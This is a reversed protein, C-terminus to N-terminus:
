SLGVTCPLRTKCRRVSLRWRHPRLARGSCTPSGFGRPDMLSGSPRRGRNRWAQPTGPQDEEARITKGVLKVCVLSLVFLAATLGFVVLAGLVRYGQVAWFPGVIRAIAGVAFTVGMWTGQPRDGLLKGVMSLCVGRGFPFAVTVLGFGTLFQAVSMSPWERDYSSPPVMCLWGLPAVVLSVVLLVHDPVRQPAGETGGQPSCLYAMVIACILNLLGAGTFLVNAAVETWGFWDQVLPTTITEQVAFGNFHVFFFFICALVGVIPTSPTTAHQASKGGSQATAHDPPAKEEFVYYLLYMLINMVVCSWGQMTFCDFVLSGLRFEPLAGVVAAFAPGCIFGSSAFTSLKGTYETRQATTVAISLYSQEVAQQGGSGVGQLLRGLLVFFPAAWASIDTYVFYAMAYSVAGTCSVICCLLLTRRTGFSNSLSGFMLSGAAEGISYSSVVCAYFTHNSGMKSLYLWLSPMVVSFSICAMFVNAYFIPAWHRQGWSPTHQSSLLPEALVKAKQRPM